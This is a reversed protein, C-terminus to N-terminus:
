FQQLFLIIGFFSLFLYVVLNLVGALGLLHVFFIIVNYGLAIRVIFCLLPNSLRKTLPRAVVYGLCYTNVAYLLAMVVNYLILLFHM